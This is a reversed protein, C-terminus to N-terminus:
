SHSPYATGNAYPPHKVGPGDELGRLGDQATRPGNWSTEEFALSVPPVPM